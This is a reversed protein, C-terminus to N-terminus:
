IERDLGAPLDRYVSIKPKPKRPSVRELQARLKASDFRIVGVMGPIAAFQGTTITVDDIQVAVEIM